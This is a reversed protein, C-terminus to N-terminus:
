KFSQYKYTIFNKDLDVEDVLDNTRLSHMLQSEYDVMNQSTIGCQDFSCIIVSPDLEQWCQSIWEVVLAYGPSKRNSAKTNAKQANILWNNWKLFYACKLPRM